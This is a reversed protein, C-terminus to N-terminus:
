YRCTLTQTSCAAFSPSSTCAVITTNTVQSIVTHAIGATLTLTMSQGVALSGRRVNDILVDFTYNNASANGLRLEATNNQQCEPVIVTPTAPNSNGCASLLALAAVLALRKM